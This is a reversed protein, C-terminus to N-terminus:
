CIKVTLEISHWVGPEFWKYQQITWASWSGIKRTLPLLPHHNRKGSHVIAVSYNCQLSQSCSPKNTDTTGM